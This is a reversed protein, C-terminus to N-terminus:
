FEELSEPVEEEVAEIVIKVTVGDFRVLQEQISFLGDQSEVLGEEANLVGNLTITQKVIKTCSPKGM